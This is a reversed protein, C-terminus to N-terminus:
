WAGAQWDVKRADLRHFQGAHVWGYFTGRNVNVLLYSGSPDASLSATAEQALTPEAASRFIRVSKFGGHVNARYIFDRSNGQEMLFIANADAPDAIVQTAKPRGAQGFGELTKGGIEGGPLLGRNGVVPLQKVYQLGTPGKGAPGLCDGDFLGTGGPLCWNALYILSRGTAPWSLSPIVLQYRGKTAGGSWISHTGTLLNFVEIMVHGASPGSRPVGAIAVKSGDPSLALAMNTLRHFKRVSHVETTDGTKNLGFEEITIWGGGGDFAAAFLPARSAEAVVTGILETSGFSRRIRDLIKGTATSRVVVDNDDAVEVRYKPMTAAARPGADSMRSRIAVAGAAVVLVATAAALAGLWVRGAPRSREIAPPVLDRLSEQSVFDARAGLADALRDETRTM